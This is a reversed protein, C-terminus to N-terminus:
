VPQWTLFVILMLTNRSFQARSHVFEISPGWFWEPTIDNRLGTKVRTDRVTNGPGQVQSDVTRLVQAGVLAFHHWSKSYSYEGRIEAAERMGPMGSEFSESFTLALSYARHAYNLSAEGTLARDIKPSGSTYFVSGLRARVTTLPFLANEYGIQAEAADFEEREGNANAIEVRAGNLTVNYKDRRSLNEEYAVRVERGFRLRKGSALTRGEFVQWLATQATVVKGVDLAVSEGILGFHSRTVTDNATTSWPTQLVSSAREGPQFFYSRYIVNSQQYFLNASRSHRWTGSLGLGLGYGSEESGPVEWQKQFSAFVPLAFESRRFSWSPVYDGRTTSFIQPKGRVNGQQSVLAGGSQTASVSDSFHSTGDLSDGNQALAVSAFLSSAFITKTFFSLTQANLM